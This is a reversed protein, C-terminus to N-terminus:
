REGLLDVVVRSPKGPAVVLEQKTPPLRPSWTRLWYRGPAVDRISFRGAKTVADFHRTPVVLIKGNMSEHISCYLNILGAHDFVLRRSTGSAYVGLDFENPMSYSFVNHYIGDANPMEVPQGVVVVAFNPVFTANRQTIVVAPLPDGASRSQREDIPELLVIVPLVAALEAGALGLQVAGGVDVTADAVAASACVGALMLALWSQRWRLPLCM